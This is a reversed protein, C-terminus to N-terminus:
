DAKVRLKRQELKCLSRRLEDRQALAGPPPEGQAQPAQAQPQEPQVSASMEDIRIPM